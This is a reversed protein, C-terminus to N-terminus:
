GITAACTLSVNGSTPPAARPSVFPRSSRDTLADRGEVTARQQWIRARRASIGVRHAAEPFGVLVIQEILHARGKATLRANKHSNVRASLLHPNEFGKLKM